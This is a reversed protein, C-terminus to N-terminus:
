RRATRAPTTCWPRLADLIRRDTHGRDRGAAAGRIRSQLRLQGRRRHATRDGGGRRCHGKDEQRHDQKRSHHHYPPCLRHRVGCRGHQEVALLAAPKEGLRAQHPQGKGYATCAIVCALDLVIYSSSGSRPMFKVDFKGLVVLLALVEFVIAAVWLAVAGIRLGTANGVPAAATMNPRPKVAGPKVEEGTSASVIKHAKKEAM